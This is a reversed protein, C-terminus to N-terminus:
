RVSPMIRKMYLYTGAGHLILVILKSAQGRTGIKATGCTYKESPAISIALRVIV